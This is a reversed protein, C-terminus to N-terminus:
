HDIFSTLMDDTSRTSALDLTIPWNPFLSELLWNPGRKGPRVHQSRCSPPRTRIHRAIFAEGSAPTLSSRASEKQVSKKENTAKKRYKRKYM